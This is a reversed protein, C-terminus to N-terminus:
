DYVNENLLWLRTTRVALQQHIEEPMEQGYTHLLQITQKLPDFMEDTAAVRERVHNLHVMVSVLQDYDGEKVPESMGAESEKIFESLESLSYFLGITTNLIRFSM